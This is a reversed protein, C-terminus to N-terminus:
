KGLLCVSHFDPIAVHYILINGLAPPTYNGPVMVDAQITENDLLTAALALGLAPATCFDGTRHKYLSHPITRGAASSLAALTDHYVEELQAESNAGLLVHDVKDLTVGSSSIARQIFAAEELPNISSMGRTELPCVKVTKICPRQRQSWAEGSLGLLFAAAGEGPLARSCFDGSNKPTSSFPARRSSRAGLAKGAYAGYPHLEDAGCALVYRARGTRLLVTAQWLALEFSVPGHTLTHNEGRFGFRIAVQSALSNHVSNAFRAPKPEKEELRVLNDLFSVTEGLEGLGTGLCVATNYCDDPTMARANLAQHAALLAMRQARGLRRLTMAPIIGKGLPDRCLRAPVEESGLEPPLKLMTPEAEPYVHGSGLIAVTPKLIRPADMGLGEVAPM